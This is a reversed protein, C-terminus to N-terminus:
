LPSFSGQDESPQYVGDGTYRATYHSHLGLVQSLSFCSAEGSEDLEGTCVKTNGVYFEVEGSPTATAPM